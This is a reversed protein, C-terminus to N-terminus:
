GAFWRLAHGPSNGHHFYHYVEIGGNNEPMYGEEFLSPYEVFFGFSGNVYTEYSVRSRLYFHISETYHTGSCGVM